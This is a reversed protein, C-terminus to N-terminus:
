SDCDHRAGGLVARARVVENPDIGAQACFAVLLAEDESLHDLVGALFNAERSAKRISEPAIGTMDLFRVLRRPEAAIFEFAAVALQDASARQRAATGANSRVGARDVM